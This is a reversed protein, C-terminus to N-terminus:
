KRRSGKLMSPFRSRVRSFQWRTSTTRFRGAGLETTPSPRPFLCLSMVEPRRWRRSGTRRALERWRAEAAAARELSAVYAQGMSRRTQAADPYVGAIGAFGAFRGDTAVAHAMYGAGACIGVGFVPLRRMKPLATLADVARQIDRAKTLPAELQRPQGGSKGFHRHDFALAAFGQATLARAYAGAAQEKVSTLPGTTVALAVPARDPLFLNGM